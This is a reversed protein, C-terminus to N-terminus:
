RVRSTPARHVVRSRLTCLLRPNYGASTPGLIELLEGVSASHRTASGVLITPPPYRPKRKRRWGVSHWHVGTPGTCVADQDSNRILERGFGSNQTTDTAKFTVTGRLVRPYGCSDAGWASSAVSHCAVVESDTFRGGISSAWSPLSSASIPQTKVSPVSGGPQQGSLDGTRFHGACQSGRHVTASGDRSLFGSGSPACRSARSWTAPSSLHYITQSQPKSGPLDLSTGEM